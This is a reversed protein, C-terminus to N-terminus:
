ADSQEKKQQMEKRTGGDRREEGRTNEMKKNGRRERSINPEEV